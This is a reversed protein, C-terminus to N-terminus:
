CEASLRAIASHATFAYVGAFILLVANLALIRLNLTVNLAGIASTLALYGNFTFLLLVTAAMLSASWKFFTTTGDLLYGATGALFLSASLIGTFIGAFLLIGGLALGYPFNIFLESEQNPISNSFLFCVLVPLGIGILVGSAAFGLMESKPAPVPLKKFNWESLVNTFKHM